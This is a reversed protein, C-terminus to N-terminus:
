NTRELTMLGNNYIVQNIIKWKKKKVNEGSWWDMVAPILGGDKRGGTEDHTGFTQVDHLVIFKSVFDSHRTLEDFLQDRNHLTDIFLMECQPITVRLSDAQTFKWEVQISEEVARLITANRCDNIDFSYLIRRGRPGMKHREDLGNLLAITSNGYRVGLEVVTDCLSALVSLRPLHENIDSPTSCAKRYLQNITETM